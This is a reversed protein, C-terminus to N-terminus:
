WSGRELLLLLYIWELGSMDVFLIGGVHGDNVYVECAREDYVFLWVLLPLVDSPLLYFAWRMEHSLYVVSV